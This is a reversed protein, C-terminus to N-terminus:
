NLSCQSTYHMRIDFSSPKVHLAYLLNSLFVLNVDHPMYGSTAIDLLCTKEHTTQLQMSDYHNSLQEAM